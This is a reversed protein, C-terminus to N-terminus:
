KKDGESPKEEILNGRPLIPDVTYKMDFIDIVDAGFINHMYTYFNQNRKLMQQKRVVKKKLEVRMKEIWDSIAGIEDNNEQIQDYCVAMTELMLAHNVENIRKPIEYLDDEYAELKENCEEILRKNEELKKEVKKSGNESLEQMQAMIEDMLNKKIQRISKTESNVKGQRKLLSNLESELAKIEETPETQTFLRHWTNDLTLIPIKKGELAREFDSEKKAM